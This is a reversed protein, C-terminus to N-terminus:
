RFGVQMFPVRGEPMFRCRAAAVRKRMEEEAIAVGITVRGESVTSGGLQLSCVLLRRAFMVHTRASLCLSWVELSNPMM